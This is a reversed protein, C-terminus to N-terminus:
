FRPTLGWSLNVLPSFYLCICIINWPYLSTFFLSSMIVGFLYLKWIFFIFIFICLPNTDTENYIFPQYKLWYIRLVKLFKSSNFVNMQFLRKCWQMSSLCYSPITVLHSYFLILWAIISRGQIRSSGMISDLIIDKKKATKRERWTFISVIDKILVHGSGEM